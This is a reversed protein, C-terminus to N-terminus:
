GRRLYELRISRFRSMLPTLRSRFIGFLGLGVGVVALMGLGVRWFPGAVGVVHTLSAGAVYLLGVVLAAGGIGALGSVTPSWGIRTGAFRWIVSLYLGYAVLSGWAAGVIGLSPMVALDFAVNAVVAIFGAALVARGAGALELARQAPTALHWLLVAAIVIAPIEPYGAYAAGLIITIADRGAVVALALTPMLIAAIRLTAVSVLSKTRPPDQMSTALHPQVALGVADVTPYIGRNAIDYISSYIGIQTARVFIALLYRDAVVLAQQCGAWLTLPWGYTWWSGIDNRSQRGARPWTMDAHKFMYPLVLVYAAVAGWVLAIGSRSGVTLVLGIGIGYRLVGSAVSYASHSRPDVAAQFSGRLTLFVATVVLLLAAAVVASMEARFFFLAVLVAIAGLLTMAATILVAGLGVAAAYGSSDDAVASSRYRIMSQQLWETALEGGSYAANYALAYIGYQFPGVLRAAIAVGVFQVLAAVARGVFYTVTERELRGWTVFVATPM